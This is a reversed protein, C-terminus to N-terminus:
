KRLSSAKGLRKKFAMAMNERLFDRKATYKTSRLAGVRNHINNNVNGAENNYLAYRDSRPINNPGSTRRTRQLYDLVGREIRYRAVHLSTAFCVSRETCEGCVRESM